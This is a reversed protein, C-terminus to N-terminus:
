GSSAISREDVKPLGVVRGVVEIDRGVWDSALADDVRMQARANALAWTGLTIALLLWLGQCQWPRRSGVRMDGVCLDGFCRALWLALGAVAGVGAVLWVPPLSAQLQTHLTAALVLLAPLTPVIAVRASDALTRILCKFSGVVSGEVM